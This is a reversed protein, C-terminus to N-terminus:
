LVLPTDTEVHPSAICVRPFVDEQRPEFGDRPQWERLRRTRDDRREAALGIEQPAFKEALVNGHEAQFEQRGRLQTFRQEATAAPINRQAFM